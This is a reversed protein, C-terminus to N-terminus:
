IKRSLRVVKLHKWVTHSPSTEFDNWVPTKVVNALCVKVIKGIGNPLRWPPTILNIALLLWKKWKRLLGRWPMTAIGLLNAACASRATRLEKLERGPEGEQAPRIHEGGKPIPWAQWNGIKHM